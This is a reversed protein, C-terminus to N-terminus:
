GELTRERGRHVHGSVSLYLFVSYRSLYLIGPARRDPEERFGHIPRHSNADQWNARSTGLNSM